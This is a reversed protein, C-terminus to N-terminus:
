VGGCPLLFAGKKAPNQSCTTVHERMSKKVGFWKACFPCIFVEDPAPQEPGHTVRTHQRLGQKTVYEHGCGECTFKFGQICGKQHAKLMHCSALLKSCNGCPFQEGRHVDM